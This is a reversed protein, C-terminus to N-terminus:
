ASGKKGCFISQGTYNGEVAVFTETIRRPLYPHRFQVRCLPAGRGPDHIIDQLMAVLTLSSSYMLDLHVIVQDDSVSFKQAIAIDNVRDATNQWLVTSTTKERFNLADGTKHRSCSRLIPQGRM